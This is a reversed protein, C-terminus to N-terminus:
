RLVTASPRHRAQVPLQVEFYRRDRSVMPSNYGMTRLPGAAQWACDPAALFGRLTAELEEIRDKTDNGIAGISLVTAAPVEVVDVGRATSRPAISPDGYLFAMTAPRASGDDANAYDMQVPATMAIGNSEIHRFLPWFASYSGGRVATRAMRYAPYERLEVEGVAAFGPFGQPLEAEVRPRFELTAALDLLDARLRRSARATDAATNASRLAARLTAVAGSGDPLHTGAIAALAVLTPLEADRRAAERLEAAAAQRGAAHSPHYLSSQGPLVVAAAAAVCTLLVSRPMRRQEGATTDRIRASPRRALPGASM